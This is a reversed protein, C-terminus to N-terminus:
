LTIRPDICSGDAFLIMYSYKGPEADEPIKLKFGGSDPDNKGILWITKGDKPITGVTAPKSQPPNPVVNFKVTGGATACFNPPVVTHAGLTLTIHDPQTASNCDEIVVKGCTALGLRDGQATCGVMMLSTLVTFVSKKNM